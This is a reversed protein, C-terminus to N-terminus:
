SYKLFYGYLDRWGIQPQKFSIHLLDDNLFILIKHPFNQFEIESSVQIKIEMCLKKGGYLKKEWFSEM